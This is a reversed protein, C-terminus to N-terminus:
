EQVTGLPDTKSEKSDDYLKELDEVSEDSSDIQRKLDSVEAETKKNEEVAEDMDFQKLLDDRQSESYREREDSVTSNLRSVRRHDLELDETKIAIDADLDEITDFDIDEGSFLDDTSTEIIQVAKLLKERKKDINNLMFNANRLKGDVEKMTALIDDLVGTKGANKAEVAQRKLEDLRNRHKRCDRELEQKRVDLRGAQDVLKKGKRNNQWRKIWKKIFEM